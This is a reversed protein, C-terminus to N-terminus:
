LRHLAGISFGRVFRYMEFFCIAFPIFGLFGLLPMEFIKIHELFPVHYIWKAGAWFNFFEWVLGCILGSLCVTFFGQLDGEERERLIGRIGLLANLPAFVFLYGLWVLPGTFQSPYFVPILIMLVGLFIEGRLRFKTFTVPKKHIQFLGHSKLLENTEFMAPLITSFAIVSGVYFVAKNDPLGIYEWNQFLLNHAEFILWFIVSLPLMLFFEKTHNLILSEGRKRFILWDLFFIYGYWAIPTVWEDLIKIDWLAVCVMLFMLFLGLFGYYKRLM